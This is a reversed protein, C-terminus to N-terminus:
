LQVPCLDSVFKGHKLLPPTITDGNKNLGFYFSDSKVFAIGGDFFDAFTYQIRIKVLGNTDCYGWIDGNRYPILQADSVGHMFLFFILLLNKM